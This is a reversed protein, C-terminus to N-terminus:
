IASFAFGIIVSKRYDSTSADISSMTFVNQQMDIKQFKFCLIGGRRGLGRASQKLIKPFFFIISNPKQM